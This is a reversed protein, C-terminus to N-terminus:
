VSSLIIQRTLTKQLLHEPRALIKSDLLAPRRPDQQYYFDLYKVDRNTEKTGYKVCGCGLAQIGTGAVVMTKKELEM